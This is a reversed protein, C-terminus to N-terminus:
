AFRDWWLPVASERDRFVTKIYGSTKEQEQLQGRCGTVQFPDGNKVTALTPFGLDM